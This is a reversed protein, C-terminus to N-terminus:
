EGVALRRLAESAMKSDYGKAGIERIYQQPRIGQVVPFKMALADWCEQPSLALAQSRVKHAEDVAGALFKVLEILQEKTPESM